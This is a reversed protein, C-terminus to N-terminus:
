VHSKYQLTYLKHLVIYYLDLIMESISTADNRLQDIVEDGVGKYMKAMAGWTGMLQNFFARNFYFYSNDGGTKEWSRVIVYEIGNKTFWGKFAVNHWSFGGQPAMVIGDRKTSGFSTYWPMGVSIGNDPKHQYLASRCNDFHDYSGDVIFDGGKIRYKEAEHLLPYPWNAPECVFAEGKEEWSFPEKEKPLFGYVRGSKLASHLDTGQIYLPKRSTLSIAMAQFAASMPIGFEDAGLETTTYASCLNQGQDRPGNIDGKEDEISFKEPLDLSAAGFNKTLSFRKDIGKPRTPLLGKDM